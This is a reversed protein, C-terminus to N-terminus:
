PWARRPAPACGGGGRGELLQAIRARALDARARTPALLLADRGGRVAQVLLRLALTTKGTGAAGLVVLNDGARVREIIRRSRADPQPLPEVARSPELRVPERATQDPM